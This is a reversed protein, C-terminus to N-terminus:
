IRIKINALISSLDKIGSVTKNPLFKRNERYQYPKKSWNDPIEPYSLRSQHKKPPFIRKREEYANLIDRPSQYFYFRKNKSKNSASYSKLRQYKAPYTIWGHADFRKRVISEKTRTLIREATTIVGKEKVIKNRVKDKRTNALAYRLLQQNLADISGFFGKIAEVNLSYWLTRLRYSGKVHVANYKDTTEILGHAKLQATARRITDRSKFGLVNCLKEQSIFVWEKRDRIVKKKLSLIYSLLRASAPMWKHQKLLASLTADMKGGTLRVSRISNDLLDGERYIIYPDFSEGEKWNTIIKIPKNHM